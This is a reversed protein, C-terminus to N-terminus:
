VNLSGAAQHDDRPNVYSADTFINERRESRYILGHAIRGAADHYDLQQAIADYDRAAIAANLEPSREPSLNGEGVNFALDVLADYENQLLPLDGVMRRVAQEAQALDRELFELVQDKSIRDGVQLNDSSTILHGVGVTPYGAVDRYVTQRAGEEEIMSQLLEDSPSLLAAPRRKEFANPSELRPPMNPAPMAATGLSMVSASLALAAKRKHKRSMGAGRSGSRAARREKMRRVLAKLKGKRRRGPHHATGPHRNLSPLPPPATITQELGPTARGGKARFL